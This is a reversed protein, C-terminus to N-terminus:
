SEFGKVQLRLGIQVEVKYLDRVQMNVFKM